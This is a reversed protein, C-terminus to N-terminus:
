RDSEFFEVLVGTVKKYPIGGGGGRHTKSFNEDEVSSYTEQLFVIDSKQKVLWLLIAKRKNLSRLGRM